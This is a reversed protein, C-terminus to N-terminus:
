KPKRERYLKQQARIASRHHYYYPGNIRAQRQAHHYRCYTGVGRSQWQTMLGIPIYCGCDPCHCLTEGARKIIKPHRTRSM